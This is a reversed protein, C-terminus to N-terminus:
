LHNEEKFVTFLYKVLKIKFMGASCRLNRIDSPLSNWIAAGKNCISFQGVNTRCRKLLILRENSGRTQNTSVGISLVNPLLGSLTKFLFMCVSFRIFLPYPLIDLRLFIPATHERSPKRAMIRMVRKQIKYIPEVVNDYTLGFAQVGYSIHSSFFAHYLLLCTKENLLRSARSLAAVGGVLKQKLHAFYAEGSLNEDFFVGLFRITPSLPIPLTNINIIGDTLSVSNRSPRIHLVESKSANISLCNNFMWNDVLTLDNNLDQAISQLVPGCIHLTTDDAYLYVRSSFPISCLDNFFLTFLTPGLLSGQPVGCNVLRHSSYSDGIHVFHTRDSMFSYILNCANQDFGYNSLKTALLSPSVSDFAKKVDIFCALSHHGIDKAVRLGEVLKCIPLITSSKKRFGFQSDSIINFQNIYDEVQDLIVREFVKAIPASISIPRYNAPSSPDGGKFLPIVRYLKLSQPFQSLSISLNIVFTLPYAIMPAIRRLVCVPLQGVSTSTVRLHELVYRTRAPNVARFTFRQRCFPFYVPPHYSQVRSEDLSVCTSYYENFTEAISSNDDIVSGNVVLKSCPKSPNRGIVANVVEWPSKGRELGHRVRKENFDIKLRRRERTVENRLSIFRNKSVMDGPKSRHLRLAEDRERLLKLFAPTVWDNRADAYRTRKALLSSNADVVSWLTSHLYDYATDPSNCDFLGSWDINEVERYIKNLDYRLRRTSTGKKTLSLSPAVIYPCYHDSFYTHAVGSSICPSGHFNYWIHDICTSSPGRAGNCERTPLNIANVFDYSEMLAKLQRSYPSDTLVDINLDGMILAPKGENAVKSLTEELSDLFALIDGGPQRYIVGVIVGKGGSVGMCECFVNEFIAGTSAQIGLDQRLRCNIDSRIFLGVGGGPNRASRSNFFSSYGCPSFFPEEDKKLRTESFAIISFKNEIHSFTDFFEDLHTKAGNINSHIASMDRIDSPNLGLVDMNNM